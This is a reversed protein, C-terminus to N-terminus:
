GPPYRSLTSTLIRIDGPIVEDKAMLSLLYEKKLVKDDSEGKVNAKVLIILWQIKWM